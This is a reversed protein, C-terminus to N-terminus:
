GEVRAARARANKAKTKRESLSREIKSEYSFKKKKKKKKENRERIADAAAKKAAEQSAKREKAEEEEEADLVQPKFLGDKSVAVTEVTVTTYRDEDIYEEEQDIIGVDPQDPIGDWEEADEEESEVEEGGAARSERLIQNVAEVHEEVERRRNERVQFLCPLSIFLILLLKL